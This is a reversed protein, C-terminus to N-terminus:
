QFSQDNWSRSNMAACSRRMCSPVPLQQCSCNDYWDCACGNAIVWSTFSGEVVQEREEKLDLAAMAFTDELSPSLHQFVLRLLCPPDPPEGHDRSNAQAVTRVHLSEEWSHLCCSALGLWAASADNCCGTQMPRTSPSCSHYEDDAELRPDHSRWDDGQFVHQPVSNLRHQSLVASPQVERRSSNVQDLGLKQFTVRFFDTDVIM